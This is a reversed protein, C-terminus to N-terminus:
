KLFIRDSLQLAPETTLVGTVRASPGSLVKDGLQGIQAQDESGYPLSFQSGLSDEPRWM